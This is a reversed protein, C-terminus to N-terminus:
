HTCDITRITWDRKIKQHTIQFRSLGVPRRQGINVQSQKAFVLVNLLKTVVCYVPGSLFFFFFKNAVLMLAM